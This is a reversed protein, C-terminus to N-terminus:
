KYKMTVLKEHSGKARKLAKFSSKIKAFRCYIIELGFIVFSLAIAVVLFVFVSSIDTFSVAKLETNSKVCDPKRERWRSHHYDWIGSEKLQLLGVALMERFGSGVFFRKSIEKWILFM